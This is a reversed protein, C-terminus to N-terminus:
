NLTTHAYTPSKNSKMDKITGNLSIIIILHSRQPWSSIAKRTCLVTRMVLIKPIPMIQNKLKAKSVPPYNCFFLPVQQINQNKDDTFLDATNQTFSCTESLNNIVSALSWLLKWIESKLIYWTGNNYCDILSICVCQVKYTNYKCRIMRLRNFYVWFKHWCITHGLLSTSQVVKRRSSCPM